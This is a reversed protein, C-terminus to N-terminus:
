PRRSAAPLIPDIDEILENRGIFRGGVYLFSRDQGTVVVTNVVRDFTIRPVPSAPLVIAASDLGNRKPDYEWVVVHLSDKRRISAVLGNIGFTGAHPTISDFQAGHLIRFHHWYLEHRGAVPEAYTFDGKQWGPAFSEVKRKWTLSFAIVLVFACTTLGRRRALRVPGIWLFSLSLMLFILHIGTIGHLFLLPDTIRGPLMRQPADPRYVVPVFDSNPVGEYEGLGTRLVHFEDGCHLVQRSYSASGRRSTRGKWTANFDALAYDQIGGWAIRLDSHLFALLLLVTALSNFILRRLSM